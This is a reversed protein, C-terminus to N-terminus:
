VRDFRIRHLLKHFFMGSGGSRNNCGSLQICLTHPFHCCSRNEEYLSELIDLYIYQYQYMIIFLYVSNHCQCACTCASLLYSRNDLNQQLIYQMLPIPNNLLCMRRRHFVIRHIKIFELPCFTDYKM